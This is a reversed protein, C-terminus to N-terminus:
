QTGPVGSFGPHFFGTARKLGSNKKKALKAKLEALKKKLAKPNKFGANLGCARLAKKFKEMEGKKPVKKGGRCEAFKEIAALLNLGEKKNKGCLLVAHHHLGGDVLICGRAGRQTKAMKKSDSFLISHLLKDPNKASFINLYYATMTFTIDRRKTFDEHDPIIQREAVIIQDCREVKWPPLNLLMKSKVMKGFSNEEPKHPKKKAAKKPAKSNNENSKGTKLTLHSNIESISCVCIVITLFLALTIKSIKM